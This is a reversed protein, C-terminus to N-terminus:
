LHFQTIAAWRALCCSNQVTWSPLELVIQAPTVYCNATILIPWFAIKKCTMVISLAAWAINQLRPDMKHIVQQMHVFLKKITHKTVKLRWKIMNICSENWIFSEPLMNVFFVDAQCCSKWLFILSMITSSHNDLVGLMWLYLQIAQMRLLIGTDAIAMSKVLWETRRKTDRDNPEM